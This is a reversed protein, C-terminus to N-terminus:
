SQLDSVAMVTGVSEPFCREHTEDGLEEVWKDDVSDQRDRVNDGLLRVWPANFVIM